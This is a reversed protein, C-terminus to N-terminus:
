QREVEANERLYQQYARYERQGELSALFNRLQSFEEGERNADGENVADLAIIAIGDDSLVSGFVAQDGEPRELSFVGSMIAGGLIPSNRPQDEYSQWDGVGMEEPEKGSELEAILTDARERLAERTKQELLAMRIEDRVAELPQEEAEYYTKVRAVVSVNDGVGILETNFRDKLVDDSFLQRVLGAHDFPADGGDRTVGETERIELGLEQAPANLDDAAYASDALQTRVEAFRDQAQSQALERRLEAEMEELPPVESSRVDLLKILHVGFSTEVPESIEGKELAFLAEEFAEDYIGREAFGLDGGQEASMTDVSFEEALDAFDEGSELREQIESMTESASEGDEILIHAARREESALESAQQKYYAELDEDSVEVTEALAELSLAIYEADVREPLRYQDINDQYYAEIEADSVEVGDRVAEASVTLMRFDRTQNQIRLLQAVNEDTVVGSQAIGARIQNVVYQKRMAERFEGVGMGMNRVAAVFRDRNFTGDVQFQPMQTILSDIDEDSLALGQANADQILVQQQILSELVDRRIRDEDLLSPDPNEMESLRRQGEMQVVRLFERETIDEGNVTAVEPEGSFGGVIADMGWISLSVILLGIIIKAITGQANERIDQLM